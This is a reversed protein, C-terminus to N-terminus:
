SLLIAAPDDRWEWPMRYPQKTLIAKLTAVLYERPDIRSLKCTEVVTYWVAAVGATTMNRSGFHNKRGVAPGYMAREIDNSHMPVEPDDLFVTLGPWLKRTYNVAKGILSRPLVYALSDIKAKIVEVIPRTLTQRAVLVEDLPRGKIQEEIESMERIRDIFFTADERYCLEAAVFKRRVHYWDNALTLDPSALVKFADAGDSVLVGSLNGLFSKAAKRSRSDYVSYCTARRNTVAWLNFRDKSSEDKKGINMWTTDDAINVRTQEIDLAIGKVVTTSLYWAVTDIQEFLTQTSVDLGHGEMMKRQRDLPLHWHYKALGVEVAFEISYRSGEKLKVPGPATVISKEGTAEDTKLYKQRHHRELVISSPVVTILESTEHQGDWAALGHAQLDGADHTHYVDRVPLGAQPTRGFSERPKKAKVPPAPAPADAVVLQRKEGALGGVRRESSRGFAQQRLRQLAENAFLVQQNEAGLARALREIEKELKRTHKTVVQLLQSNDVLMQRLTLADYRELEEPQFADM